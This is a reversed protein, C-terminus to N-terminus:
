SRTGGRRVVLSGTKLGIDRGIPDCKVQLLFFVRSGQDSLTEYNAMGKAIILPAEDWLKLFEPSSHKFIVGLGRYGTTKIEAVHEIGAAFADEITADNLIAGGRVVYVVRKSPCIEEILLRDFVTEGANDAIYLLWGARDIEAKLAPVANETLPQELVRRVSDKLDYTESAAFDIINGAIALRVATEFRNEAKNIVKKLEPYLQLAERTSRAKVERFLDLGGTVEAIASYVKNVTEPPTSSGNLNQLEFLARNMVARQGEDDMGAFRSASLAQRVLCSYCDLKTQM